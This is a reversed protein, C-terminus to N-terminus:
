KTSYNIYLLGTKIDKTIIDSGVEEKLYKVMSVKYIITAPHLVKCGLNDVYKIDYGVEEVLHKFITVNGSLAAMYLLSCWQTDLANIDSGVKEM